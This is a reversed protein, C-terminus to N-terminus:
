EGEPRFGPVYVSVLITRTSGRPVWPRPAAPHDSLTYISGQEHARRVAITIEWINGEEFSSVKDAVVSVSWHPAREFEWYPLLATPVIAIEEIGTHDLTLDLALREIMRVTPLIFTGRTGGTREEKVIARLAAVVEELIAKRTESDTKYDIVTPKTNM